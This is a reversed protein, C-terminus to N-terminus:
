GTRVMVHEGLVTQTEVEPSRLGAGTCACTVAELGWRKQVGGRKRQQKEGSSYMERGWQCHAQPHRAMPIGASVPFAPTEDCEQTHSGRRSRGVDWPSCAEPLQQSLLVLSLGQGPWSAFM